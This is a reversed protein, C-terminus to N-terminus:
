PTEAACRRIDKRLLKDIKTDLRDKADASPAAVVIYTIKGITRRTTTTQPKEVISTGENLFLIAPCYPM